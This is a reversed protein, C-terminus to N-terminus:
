QEAEQSDMTEPTKVKKLLAVYEKALLRGLHDLLDRLEADPVTPRSRDARPTRAARGRGMDGGLHYISDRM